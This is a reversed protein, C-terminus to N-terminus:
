HQQQCRRLHDFIEVENFELLSMPDEANFVQQQNISSFIGDHIRITSQWSSVAFFGDGQLWTIASISDQPLNSENDVKIDLLSDDSTPNQLM